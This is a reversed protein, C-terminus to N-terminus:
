LYRSINVSFMTKANREHRKTSVLINKEQLSIYYIYDWRQM